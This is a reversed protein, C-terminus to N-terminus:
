GGSFPPLFAIEDGDSVKEDFSVITNNLAFKIRSNEFAAGLSENGACLKEVVARITTRAGDFEITRERGMIDSLVGFFAIKIM